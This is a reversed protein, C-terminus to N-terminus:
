GSIYELPRGKTKPGLAAVVAASMMYAFAIFVFVGKVGARELIMAIAFGTFVAAIRSWSYVFGVARSRVSTPFLENQYTHFTYVLMNNAITLVVGMAVIAIGNKSVSFLLGTLLAVIATTVIASKREVKDAVFLGIFPGVPAALAILTSYGLSTNLTAGQKLLLTPVWSTFGYYGIGAFFNFVSMMLMRRRYPAKFLISIPLRSTQAPASSEIDPLSRGIELEVLRELSRVVADAEDVRGAQYLWRPSEVLGRRLWWVFVASTSGILVVWRWGDFGLPSYPVLLYALVAVVPQAIFGITQECAFARGRIAKPALETIYAGITVLELGIGIGSGFRWAILGIATHQFAMITNAATYWLLSYTFIARRGFRDAIYGCCLTGVVLGAFTSAIFAAVGTSGFFAPTNSTLIGANVLGPAIYATLLLDYLEFFFGMSLLVIMKWISRTAPLRDLRALISAPVATNAQEM